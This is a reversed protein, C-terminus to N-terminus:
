LSKLEAVLTENYQRAVPIQFQGGLLHLKYGQANGTIREARDLNVVYSRHCRVVPKHAIHPQNIQKELRSLSSRLLPKAIKNVENPGDKLYFVTCYNDSSEIFLLNGAPFVLTDKENDAILTVVTDAPHSGTGKEDSAPLPNHVPLENASRSYKKLQTIYNLLIIGSIPFLGILSTVGISWLWSGLVLPKNILWGLYLRNGVSIVMVLVLTQVIEKGVTWREDSFYRPFLAPLVFYHVLMAMLTVGGFGLIKLTKVPTQWDDLGFPQFALLFFGIFTSIAVSKIARRSVSEEIPYPQNLLKLM